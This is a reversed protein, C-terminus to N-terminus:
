EFTAIIDEGAKVDLGTKFSVNKAEGEDTIVLMSTTLYGKEKIKEIDFTILTQGAHVKDGMEVLCEFGEGKMNVTDIGIHLIIEMGNDLRLACAHKSDKMILAIEGDAPAVVKNGTPIIGIGDGMSKSAFAEDEVESIPIVKGTLFAKLEKNKNKKLFSFM